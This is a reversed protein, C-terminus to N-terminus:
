LSSMSRTPDERELCTESIGYNPLVQGVPEKECCSQVDPFVEETDSDTVLPVAQGTFDLVARVDLDELVAVPSM